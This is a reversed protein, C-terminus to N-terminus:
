ALLKRATDEDLKQCNKYFSIVNKHGEMTAKTSVIHEALKQKNM